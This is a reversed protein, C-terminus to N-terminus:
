EDLQCLCCAVIHSWVWSGDVAEGSTLGTILFGPGRGHMSMGQPGSQYTVFSKEGEESVLPQSRFLSQSIQQMGHVIM